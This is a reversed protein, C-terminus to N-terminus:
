VDPSMELWAAAANFGRYVHSTCGGTSCHTCNEDRTNLDSPNLHLCSPGSVLSVDFQEALHPEEQRPFVSTCLSPM